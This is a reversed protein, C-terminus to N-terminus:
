NIKVIFTVAHNAGAAQTGLTVDIGTANAAVGADADPADTLAAGDLTLSGLQYMSGDPIADKLHVGALSGSGGVTAVLRYTILAGPVARTGGYPDAVTATKVLALTAAQVVFGGTANAQAHTAGVIADGGGTGQGTFVTGPAGTGTAATATLRVQGHKGDGAGAPITSLVFVTIAADPDLLPSTAGAAIVQDVGADYIGNGNTDIAISTVAPGFDNGSVAGVGALSFAEQGNGANTLTFSRIQGTGGPSVSAYGSDRSAVTVDLVEEVTLDVSNSNVTRTGGGDDFTATAVNRIVTGARVGSAAAPSAAICTVAAAGALLLPLHHGFLTPQTNM